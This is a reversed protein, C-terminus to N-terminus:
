LNEWPHFSLPKLKEKYLDSNSDIVKDFDTIHVSFVNHNANKILYLETKGLSSYYDKQYRYKFIKDSDSILMRDYIFRSAFNEDKVLADYYSQLADLEDNCSKASRMCPHSNFIELEEQSNCLYKERFQLFNTVDISRFIKLIHEDLGLNEDFLNINGNISIKLQVKPLKDIILSSIFVGASYAILYFKRYKSFDFDIKLNDYDYFIMLDRKSTIAEFQKDDCGWGSMFIILEDSHNNILLKSKM